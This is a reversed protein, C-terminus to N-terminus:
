NQNVIQLCILYIIMLIRSITTILNRWQQRKAYWIYICFRLRPTLEPFRCRGFGDFIVSRWYVNCLSIYMRHISLCSGYTEALIWLPRPGSSWRDFTQFQILATSCFHMDSLAPTILNSPTRNERPLMHLNRISFEQFQRRRVQAGHWRTLKSDIKNVNDVTKM